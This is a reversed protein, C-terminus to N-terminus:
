ERYELMFKTKKCKDCKTKNAVCNECKIYYGHDAVTNDSIRPEGFVNNNSHFKYQIDTNNPIVTQNEYMKFVVGARSIDYSRTKKIYEKDIISAYCRLKKGFPNLRIVAGDYM